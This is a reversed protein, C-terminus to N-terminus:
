DNLNNTLYANYIGIRSSSYNNIGFATKSDDYAYNGKTQYNNDTAPIATKDVLDLTFWKRDLNLNAPNSTGYTYNFYFEWITEKAGGSQEGFPNNIFQISGAKNGYNLGQMEIKLYRYQTVPFPFDVTYGTTASSGTNVLLYGTGNYNEAITGRSMRFKNPFNETDVYGDKIIWFKQEVAKIGSLMRRRLM